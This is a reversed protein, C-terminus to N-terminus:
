HAVLKVAATEFREDVTTMTSYLTSTKDDMSVTVKDAVTGDKGAILCRFFDDPSPSGHFLNSARIQATGTTAYSVCFSLGPPAKYRLFATPVQGRDINQVHQEVLKVPFPVSEDAAFAPASCLTGALALALWQVKM